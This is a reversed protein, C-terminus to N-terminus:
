RGSEAISLNIKRGQWADIYSFLDRSVKAKNQVFRNLIKGPEDMPVRILNDNGYGAKGNQMVLMEYNILLLGALKTIVMDLECFKIWEGKVGLKQRINALAQDKPFTTYGNFTVDEFGIIPEDQIRVSAMLMRALICSIFMWKLNSASHPEDNEEPYKPDKKCLIIMFNPAAYFPVFETLISHLEERVVENKIIIKEERLEKALEEITNATSIGEIADKAEEIDCGFIDKLARALRTQSVIGYINNNLGQLIQVNGVPLVPFNMKGDVISSLVVKSWSAYKSLQPYEGKNIAQIHLINVFETWLQVLDYSAAVHPFIVIVKATGTDMMLKRFKSEFNCLGCTRLKNEKNLRSGAVMMDHYIDSKGILDALAAFKPENGCVVCVITGTSTKGRSFINYINEAKLNASYFEPYVLDSCLMERLKIFPDRDLELDNLKNAISSSVKISATVLRKRWEDISVKSKDIEHQARLSRLIKIRTGVETNNSFKSSYNIFSKDSGLEKVFHDDLSKQFISELINNDESGANIMIQQAAELVGKLIILTNFEAMLNIANGKSDDLGEEKLAKMFKTLTPNDEKYKTLLNQPNLDKNAVFKWFTTIITEKDEFIDKPIFLFEPISIVTKNIGGYCSRVLQKSPINKFFDFLVNILKRRIADKDIPSQGSANKGTAYLTSNTFWMIPVYGREKYSEEVAKSLFQTLVGRIPTFEHYDFSFYQNRHHRSLKVCDSADELSCIADALTVLDSLIDEDGFQPSSNRSEAIHALGETKNAWIFSILASELEKVSLKSEHFLSKDDNVKNIFSLFYEVAGKDVQLITESTHAKRIWNLQFEESSKKCDHLFGAVMLRKIQNDSLPIINALRCATSAVNIAHALLPQQMNAKHKGYKLHWGHKVANDILCHLLNEHTL